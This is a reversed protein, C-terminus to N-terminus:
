GIIAIGHGDKICHKAKLMKLRLPATRRMSKALRAAFRNKFEVLKAERELKLIGNNHRIEDNKIAVAAAATADAPVNLLPRPVLKAVEFPLEGRMFCGFGLTNSTETAVDVWVRLIPKDPEESPFEPFGIANAFGVDEPAAAFISM